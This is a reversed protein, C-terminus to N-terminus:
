ALRFSSADNENSVIFRKGNAFALEVMARGQSQSAQTASVSLGVLEFEAGVDRHPYNWGEAPVAWPSPPSSEVRWFVVGADISLRHWVGSLKVYVVNAPSEVRGNFEFSECVLGELPQGGAEPASGHTEPQM